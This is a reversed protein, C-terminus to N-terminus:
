TKICWFVYATPAMNQHAGGGGTNAVTLTGTLTDTGGGVNLSGGAGPTRLINTAAVAGHLVDHAHAPIEGTVLTHTEVGYKTAVARNTIGSAVGGTGTVSYGRLDPLNFTTSGDGVGWTTGIATFLAAYTTRSVASGDCALYGTPASTGGYPAILGAPTKADAALKVSTIIGDAIVATAGVANDRLTGNSKLVVGFLQELANVFDRIKRFNSDIQSSSLPTGQVLRFILGSLM